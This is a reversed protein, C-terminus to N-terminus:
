PARYNLPVYVRLTEKVGLNSGPLTLTLTRAGAVPPEFLLLDDIVKGPYISETGAQGTVKTGEGFQVPKYRNGHEDTLAATGPRGRPDASWSVYDIKRTAHTNHLRLGIQFFPEKSKRPGDGLGLADLAGTISVPGAGSDRLWVRLDGLAGPGQTLDTPEPPPVAQPAPPAPAAPQAQPAPPGPPGGCALPLAALVAFLPLSRTPM